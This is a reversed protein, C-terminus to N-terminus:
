EHPEHRGDAPLAVATAMDDRAHHARLVLRLGIDTQTGDARLAQQVFAQAATTIHAGLNWEFGVSVRRGYGIGRVMSQLGVSAYEVTTIAADSVESAFVSARARLTILPGTNWRLDIWGISGSLWEGDALRVFRVDANARVQLSPSIRRHLRLRATWMRRPVLRRQVLSVGDEDHHHWLRWDARLRQTVRQELDAIFEFGTSAMPLLRTRWPRGFLAASCRFTAMGRTTSRLRLMLGWSNAAREATAVISGLPLDCDADAYWLSLSASSTAHMTSIIAQAAVRRRGDLAIEAGLDFPALKRRYTLGAAGSPTGQSERALLTATFMGGLLSDELWGALLGQTTSMIRGGLLHLTMSTDLRVALSAGRVGGVGGRIPPSVTRAPALRSRGFGRASSVMSGLGSQAAVQGLGVTWGSGHAIVWWLPDSGSAPTRVLGIRFSPHDMLARVSTVDSAGTSRLLLSTEPVADLLLDDLWSVEEPMHLTDPDVEQAQLVGNLTLLAVIVGTFWEVM